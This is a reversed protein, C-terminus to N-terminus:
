EAWVALENGNPDTFHFRKGGPFDYIPKIIAGGAEEVAAATAPLDDSFLVVLAGHAVAPQAEEFGNFGGDIGAEGASFAMYNPGYDQFSWGFVDGYFTKTAAADTMPLEIYNITHRRPKASTM